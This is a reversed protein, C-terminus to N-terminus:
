EGKIERRVWNFYSENSSVPIKIVCTVSYSHIKRVEEKVGEYNEKTTKGILVYEDENVIEDQWWYLSNIKFINACAILRMNLLHEAIRTAEDKSPNTIYILVFDYMPKGNIVEQSFAFQNEASKCM